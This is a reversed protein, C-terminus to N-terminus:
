STARSGAEVTLKWWWLGGSQIVGWKPTIWFRSLLEDWRMGDSLHNIFVIFFVPSLILGQLIGGIIM